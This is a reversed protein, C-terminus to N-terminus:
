TPELLEPVTIIFQTRKILDPLFYGGEKKGAPCLAGAGPLKASLELTPHVRREPLGGALHPLLGTGACPPVLWLYRTGEVDRESLLGRRVVDLQVVLM